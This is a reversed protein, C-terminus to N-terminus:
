REAGDRERINAVSRPYGLQEPATTHEAIFAVLEPAASFWEHGVYGDAIRQYAAFQTHLSRERREAQLLPKDGDDFSLIGLLEVPEHNDCQIARLRQKVKDKQTVGIKVAILPRGAGIFYVVGAKAYWPSAYKPTREKEPTKTM